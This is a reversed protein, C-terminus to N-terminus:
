FVHMNPMLVMLYVNSFWITDKVGPFDRVARDEVWRALHDLVGRRYPPDRSSGISDWHTLRRHKIDICAMTWHLFYPSHHMPVYIRDHSLLTHQQDGLAGITFRKYVYNMPPLPRASPDFDM